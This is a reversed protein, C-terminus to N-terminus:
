REGSGEDAAPVVKVAIRTAVDRDTATMRQNRREIDARAREAAAAADDKKDKKERSDARPPPEPRRVSAALPTRHQPSLLSAKMVQGEEVNEGAPEADAEDKEGKEDKPEIANLALFVGGLFM